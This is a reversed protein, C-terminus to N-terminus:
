DKWYDDWGQPDYGYLDHEEQDSGEPYEYDWSDDYVDGWSISYDQEDFKTYLEEEAREEEEREKSILHLEELGLLIDDLSRRQRRAAQKKLAKKSAPSSFVVGDGGELGIVIRESPSGQGRALRTALKEDSVRSPVNRNTRAM